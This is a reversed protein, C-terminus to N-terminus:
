PLTTSKRWYFDELSKREPFQAQRLRRELLRERRRTLEDDVLLEFFEHNEKLVEMLWCCIKSRAVHRKM